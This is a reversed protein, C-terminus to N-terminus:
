REREAGNRCHGLRLLRDAASSHHNCESGVRIVEIQRDRRANRDRQGGLSDYLTQDAEAAIEVRSRGQRGGPVDTGIALADDKMKPFTYSPVVALGEGRGIHLIRKLTEGLQM